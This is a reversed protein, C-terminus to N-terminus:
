FTTFERFTAVSILAVVAELCFVGEPLLSTRQPFHPVQIGASRANFRFAPNAVNQEGSHM